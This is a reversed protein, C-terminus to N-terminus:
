LDWDLKLVNVPPGQDTELYSLIFARSTNSFAKYSNALPNGQDTRSM